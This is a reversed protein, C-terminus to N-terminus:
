DDILDNIDDILNDLEKLLHRRQKDSLTNNLEALMQAYLLRNGEIASQYATSRFQDPHKILQDLQESFNERQHRELLLAKAAQQINRRYALWYDFTSEFKIAYENLLQKQQQSLRGIKDQADSRLDEQFSEIREQPSKEDREKQKKQDKEALATFLEEIQEDTLSMALVSLEPSITDRFREWHARGKTFEQLLEQETISGQQLRTKIDIIQERYRILEEKRHWRHWEAIKLDLLDKQSSNLDVYDDIYWHILWDLNNYAFTSSCGGILLAALLVLGTIINKM